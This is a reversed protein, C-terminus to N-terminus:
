PASVPVSVKPKPKGKDVNKGSADGVRNGSAAKELGLELVARIADISQKIADHIGEEETPTFSQLVYSAISVGGPPPRGIGIKIRPFENTGLQAIISRMGNHGGHGGKSRLRVNASPLDLDDYIVLIREPKIGYYKSLKAVGEGSNNMFTLPKTLLVKQDAIRGRGVQCNAQLRDTQVDYVKALHDITMFGINHRTGDYRAGPNGLGVIMWLDAETQGHNNHRSANTRRVFSSVLQGMGTSAPSVVGQQRRVLFHPQILAAKRNIIAKLIPQSLYFPRSTNLSAVM